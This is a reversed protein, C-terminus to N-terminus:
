DCKAEGAPQAYFGRSAASDMFLVGSQSDACISFVELSESRTIKAWHPFEVDDMVAERKDGRLLVFDSNKGPRFDAGFSFGVSLASIEVSHGETIDHASAPIFEPVWGRDMAGSAALERYNDYSSVTVDSCGSMACAFCALLVVFTKM